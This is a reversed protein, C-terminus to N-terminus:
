LYGYVFASILSKSDRSTALGHTPPELRRRAAVVVPNTDMHETYTTPLIRTRPVRLRRTNLKCGRLTSTPACESEDLEENDKETASGGVM